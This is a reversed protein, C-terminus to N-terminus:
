WLIASIIEYALWGSIVWILVALPFMIVFGIVDNLDPLKM